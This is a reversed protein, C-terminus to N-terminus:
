HKTAYENELDAINLDIQENLFKEHYGSRDMEQYMLLTQHVIKKLTSELRDIQGSLETERATYRANTRSLRSNFDVLRDMTADRTEIYKMQAVCLDDLMQYPVIKTEKFETDVKKKRKTKTAKTM